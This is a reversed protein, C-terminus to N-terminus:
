KPGWVVVADPGAVAVLGHGSEDSIQRVWPMADAYGFRIRLEQNMRVSGRVGKVRRVVDARRDGFPMLDTVEVEGDPTVWTTVLTFTSDLYKRSTSQIEGDPALLWRGHDKTGLLAGFTSASDFRPLCLWDISGDNGVLAATHCDGILAYDEINLAM